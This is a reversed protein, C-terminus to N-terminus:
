PSALLFTATTISLLRAGGLTGSGAPRFPGRCQGPDAPALPPPDGTTRARRPLRALPGPPHAPPPPCTAKSPPAGSQRTSTRISGIYGRPSGGPDWPPWVASMESGILLCPGRGKRSSPTGPPWPCTADRPGLQQPGRKGIPESNTLRAGPKPISGDRPELHMQLRLM